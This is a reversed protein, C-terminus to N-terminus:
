RYTDRDKSFMGSLMVTHSTEAQEPVSDLRNGPKMKERFLEDTGGLNSCELVGVNWCELM